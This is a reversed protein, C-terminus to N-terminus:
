GLKETARDIAATLQRAVDVLDPAAQELEFVRRVAEVTDAKALATRIRVAQFLPLARPEFPRGAKGIRSVAFKEWKALEEGVAQQDPLADGEPQMMPPQGPVMVPPPPAPKAVDAPNPTTPSIQAPFLFGRPDLKSVPLEAKGFPVVSTQPPQGAQAQMEDPMAELKAEAEAEKAAIAKIVTPDLELPQEDYYEARIENITHYKAYEAQEQLDLIRNTQRIDDFAGDLNEGYLPLIDSSFKQALQDLLPWVAFEILTSKGAIANAETANVALISALGPALKGYIEEKTFNRGALFDMEKQSMAAPLWQVTDGVGRLLMAGAQNAGGWETDRQRTIKGWEPDSIMHKFALIGPMKGNNKDFLSLNWRQQALDGFADLALSQVASLGVFPNLPNFTKLHLIQWRPVFVASKGPATFEYGRIYSAGDPLPRMMQSPVPWLEDPPLGESAANQHIFLDGTLRFWSLADRLFESRSQAPNPRRLLLEFPHNPIDVDDEDKDIETGTRKVSFQAASGISAVQDIATAVWTLAAYLRAQKEAAGLDPYEWRYADGLAMLTDPTPQPAKFFGLRAALTDIFTM